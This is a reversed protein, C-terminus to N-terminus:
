FYGRMPALSPTTSAPDLAAIQEDLAAIYAVLRNADSQTYRIEEGNQDRVSAVAKGILLQHYATGAEVRLARLEALTATNAM